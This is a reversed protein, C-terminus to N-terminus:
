ATSPNLESGELLGAINYLSCKCYELVKTLQPSLTYTGDKQQKVLTELTQEIAGPMDNLSVKKLFVVISSFSIGYHKLVGFRFDVLKPLLDALAKPKNKCHCMLSSVSTVTINHHQQVIKINEINEYTNGTKAFLFDFDKKDYRCTKFINSIYQKVEPLKELITKVEYNQNLYEELNCKIDSTNSRKPAM